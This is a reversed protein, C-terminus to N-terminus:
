NGVYQKYSKSRELIPNVRQYTGSNYEMIYIGELLQQTVEDYLTEKGQLNNEKIEKLKDMMPKTLFQAKENALRDLAKELATRQIVGSSEDTYFSANELIRLLERPSGGSFHIADNVLDENEFLSKDIRKYVFERFREIAGEAITNDQNILKVFPFPVVESFMKLSEKAKMLEIPLTFITYAQIKQLRNQEEVIIKRRTDSSMTKELGDVIFLVERGVKHERLAINVEEVYDNFLNSFTIFNNKLTNRVTKAREHSGTVGVKFKAFINLLGFTIKDTKTEVGTEFGAETNLTNKVEKEIDDFWRKMREIISSDIDIYIDEQTLEEIRKTLQELQLILVDMYELENIDLEKDINCTVCFFCESHNLCHAYKALESTKGSGRMGGLFLLTKNNTNLAADFTFHDGSKKVNLNKFIRKEEFEGRFDKFDTFFPHTSDIPENFQVAQDIEELTTAKKSM